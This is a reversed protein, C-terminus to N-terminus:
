FVLSFQTGFTFSTWVGAYCDLGAYAQVAANDATRLSLGINGLARMAAPMEFVLPTSDTHRLSYEHGDSGGIVARAGLSTRRALPIDAVIGAGIFHVDPMTAGDPLIVLADMETENRDPNWQLQTLGASVTAGLYWPMYDANLYISCAPRIALSGGYFTNAGLSYSSQLSFAWTYRDWADSQTPSCEKHSDGLIIDSLSYGMEVSFIGIGAGALIDSCWHRDSEVRSLATAAAIGYGAVSFWPSVTEGYEKHLLTACMFSTASHGSPFSNSARHDPRERRVTYKLGNVAVTVIATSLAGSVTMGILDSRSELGCAKLSLMIGAPAYQTYDAFKLVPSKMAGERMISCDLVNDNYLAGAAFMVSPLVWRGVSSFALSDSRGYLLADSRGAGSGAAPMLLLFFALIAGTRM